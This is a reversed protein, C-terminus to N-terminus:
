MGLKKAMITLASDDSEGMVELFGQFKVTINAYLSPMIINDLLYEMKQSNLPLTGIM